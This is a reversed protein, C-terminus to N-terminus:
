LGLAGATILVAGLTGLLAAVQIPRRRRVWTNLRAMGARATDPAILAALLPIEVLAFAVVNFTVLAAIQTPVAAGSAVIVALAGLYDLSPLAIGLGATAAVWLSRGKLLRSAHAAVARPGPAPTTSPCAPSTAARLALVAATLLALSGIGIQVKPLTLGSAAVTTPRVAFLAVLGGTMGMLFGGCLFATLQLVPRPRNLMLLTLGIRVPEVSTLAAMVLLAIWM